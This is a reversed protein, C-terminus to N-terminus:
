KKPLAPGSPGGGQRDSPEWKWPWEHPDKVIGRRVPNMRIYNAKEEFSEDNRLRHDFFDRQWKIGARKATFEKFLSITKVMPEGQPFSVLAHLHDPMLLVLHVYWPGERHRFNVAEFLNEAVQGCCLQDQGRPQCCVTIFYAAGVPVWAPVNHPLSSRQQLVNM